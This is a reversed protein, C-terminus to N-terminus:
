DIFFSWREYVGVLGAMRDVREWKCLIGIPVEFNEGIYVLVYNATQVPEGSEDVRIDLWDYFGIGTKHLFGRLYM